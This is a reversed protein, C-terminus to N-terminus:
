VQVEGCVNRDEAPEKARFWKDWRGVVISRKIPDAGPATVFIDLLQITRFDEVPPITIAADCQPCSNEVLDFHSAICAECFTHGCETLRCFDYVCWVM